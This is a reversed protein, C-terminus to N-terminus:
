MNVRSVTHNLGVPSRQLRGLYAYGGAFAALVYFMRELGSGFSGDIMMLLTGLICAVLSAGIMSFDADTDAIRRSLTWAQVAALLIFGLLLGLGVFGSSLLVSAYSNIVDIIGEGQRLDQLKLLAEQDGLIPSERIVQWTRDFLRRRYYFSADEAYDGFFPLFKAIKNGFPTDSIVVAVIAAIASAKFFRSLARPILLYYMLFICGAFLWPGRSYTVILGLCLLLTVGIRYLAPISKSQLYFWFGLAIALLYGLALSHGASAAARLSEGRWYYLSFSFVQGWREALEGYLLWHSFSEFIAIGAMLACALTFAALDEVLVKRNSISRSIVWYPIFTEVFFVFARRMADTYTFAALVGRYIEPQLYFFGTLIGYSLLLADMMRLRGFAQPHKSRRMRLAAPAMVFISLLMYNNVDFLESMGVMPVRFSIPPIVHLLFLYVAGPNSDKRGILILVPIACIAFIWFNPSLFSAATLAFWAFRRRSFDEKTSFRLAIPKALRFIAAAILCVVIMEKISLAM